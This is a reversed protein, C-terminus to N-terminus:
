TGRLPTVGHRLLRGPTAGTCRGDIFISQGAVMVHHYGTARRVRRWEGAPLDHVKEMPEEGLSALDYVILDAAYGPAIRGREHLGAIQAPLGSLRFHAEELSLRGTDRVLWSVLDTPYTGATQFKVHAGGDSTGPVTVPSDFLERTMDPDDNIPPTVWETGLDESLAIDLMADIPHKGLMAAIDFLSRGIYPRFPESETRHLVYLGVHGFFSINAGGADWDARLAARTEPNSFRRKRDSSSGLTAVRWAESADFLNWDELTMVLPSRVSASQAFVRAGRRNADAIWALQQQCIAAGDHKAIVANFLVPRGSVESLRANFAIDRRLGDLFDVAGATCQAFQIFTGSRDHLADALSLYLEDPLLDSVMSSGDFDRQFSVPSEPLHRQAGWGIAGADLAERLLSIIHAHEKATPARGKAADFGGM